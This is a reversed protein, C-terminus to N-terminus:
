ERQETLRERGEWWEDWRKEELQRRGLKEQSGEKEQSRGERRGKERGEETREWGTGLRLSINLVYYFQSTKERYTVVCCEYWM